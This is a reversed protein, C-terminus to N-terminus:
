KDWRGSLKAMIAGRNTDFSRKLHPRPKMKRTGFELHPAYPVPTGVEAREMFKPGAVRHRYSTALAGTRKAPFQGPASATYNKQTGPVRYSRGGAGGSSLNKVVANRWENGAALLNEKARSHMARKVAQINNFSKAM